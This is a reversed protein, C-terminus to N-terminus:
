GAGAMRGAKATPRTKAPQQLLTIKRSSRTRHTVGAPRVLSAPPPAGGRATGGRAPRPGPHSRRRGTDASPQKPGRQTPQETMRRVTREGAWYNRLMGRPSCQPHKSDDSEKWVRPSQLRSLKKEWPARPLVWPEELEKRSGALAM